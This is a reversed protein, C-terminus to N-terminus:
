KKLDSFFSVLKTAVGVLTELIAQGGAVSLILILPFITKPVILYGVAIILACWIGACWYCNLLYGFNSKPVKKTEVQGQEDVTQKKKMFPKRIFETIKDFVILHTLRYSALILMTFTLWSLHEM